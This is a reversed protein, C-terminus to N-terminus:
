NRPVTLIQWFLEWDLSAVMPGAGLQKTWQVWLPGCAQAATVPINTVVPAAAPVGDISGTLVTGDANVDLRFRTFVTASATAAIGTDTKTRVGANAAVLRWNHDGHEAFDYEFYVGDTPEAFANSDHAGIRAVANDVGNSLAEMRFSLEM